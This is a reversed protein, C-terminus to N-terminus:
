EWINPLKTSIVIGKTHKRKGNCVQSVSSPNLQYKECVVNIGVLEDILVDNRFLYYRKASPNQKGLMPHSKNYWIPVNKKSLSIKNKTDITHKRGFFHNLKGLRTKNFDSLGQMEKKPRKRGRTSGATPCINYGHTRKHSQYKNIYFQEKENLLSCSIHTELFSVTINEPSYKLIARLLHKNARPRRYERFRLYVSQCQGIYVKNNPTTLKYIAPFDFDSKSFLFDLTM